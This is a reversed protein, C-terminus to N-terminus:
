HGRGRDSLFASCFAVHTIEVHGILVHFVSEGKRVSCLGVNAGLEQSAQGRVPARSRLASPLIQATVKPLQPLSPPHFASFGGLGTQLSPALSGRSESYARSAPKATATVLLELLWFSGCLASVTTVVPGFGIRFHLGAFPHPQSGPISHGWCGGLTRQGM